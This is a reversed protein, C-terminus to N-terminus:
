RPVSSLIKIVLLVDRTELQSVSCLIGAWQVQLSSVVVGEGSIVKKTLSLDM